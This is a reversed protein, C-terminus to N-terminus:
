GNRRKDLKIQWCGGVVEDTSRCRSARFRTWGVVAGSLEARWLDAARLDAEHLNAEGLDAGSLDAGFLDARVDPHEERWRNWAEVGKERLIRLQEEDAM